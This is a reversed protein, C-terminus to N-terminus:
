RSVQIESKKPLFLHSGILIFSEVSQSLNCGWSLMWRNGNEAQSRCFSYGGITDTKAFAGATQAISLFKKAYANQWWNCDGEKADPGTYVVNVVRMIKRFWTMGVTSETIPVIEDFDKISFRDVIASKRKSELRWLFCIMCIIFLGFVIDFWTTVFTMVVIVRSFM